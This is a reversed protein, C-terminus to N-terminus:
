KKLRAERSGTRGVLLLLHDRSRDISLDFMAAIADAFGDPDLARFGGTVPIEALAPDALRVQTRNYRNIASVAARLPTRDLALMGSVWQAEAASARHPPAAAGFEAQEGPALLRPASPTHASVTDVLEVPGRLASVLPATGIVSVDFTRGRAVVEGGRVAVVFRRRPEPAVDFRARGRTLGLRREGPTFRVAISTATDLTVRSGDALTVLRIEGTRTQFTLAEAAPIISLPQSTHLVSIAAIGLAAAVGIGAAGVRVNRRMLFPAPGLRRSRGLDSDALLLGDRWDREAQEYAQAHLPSEALWRAFAREVQPEPAGQRRVLWDGAADHVSQPLPRAEPDIM